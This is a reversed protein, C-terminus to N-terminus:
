VAGTAEQPRAAVPAYKVYWVLQGRRPRDTGQVGEYGTSRSTRVDAHPGIFAIAEAWNYDFYRVEGNANRAYVTGLMCEWLAPRHAQTPKAKKASARFARLEERDRDNKNM